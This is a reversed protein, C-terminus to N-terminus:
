RLGERGAKEMGAVLDVVLCRVVEVGVDNSAEVEAAEPGRWRKPWGFVPGVLVTSPDADLHEDLRTLVRKKKM